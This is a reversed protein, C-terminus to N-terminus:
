KKLAEISELTDFDWTEFRSKTKKFVVPKPAKCKGGTWRHPFKYANCNCTITNRKIKM